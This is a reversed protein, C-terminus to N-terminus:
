LIGPQLVANGPLFMFRKLFFRKTKTTTFKVRRDTGMKRAPHPPAFVESAELATGAPAELPVEPLEPELEPLLDPDDLLPPLELLPELLLPLELLPLELLLPPEPLPELLLVELLPVELLPAELATGAPARCTEDMWFSLLQSATYSVAVPLLPAVEEPLMLRVPDGERLPAARLNAM